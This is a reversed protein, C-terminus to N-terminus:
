HLRRMHTGCIMSGFPGSTPASVLRGFSQSFSHPHIPSGDEKAAVLDHDEYDPAWEQQERLQELRHARLLVVTEPDLDIM